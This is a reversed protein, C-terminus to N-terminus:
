TSRREVCGACLTGAAREGYRRISGGCGACPGADPGAYGVPTPKNEVRSVTAGPFEALIALLVRAHHEPTVEWLVSGPICAWHM